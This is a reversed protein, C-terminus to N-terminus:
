ISYQKSQLTHELINSLQIMIDGNLEKDAQHNMSKLKENLTFGARPINLFEALQDFCQEHNRCLNEYSLEFYRKEEKLNHLEVQKNIENIYEVWVKAIQILIKDFSWDYGKEKFPAPHADILKKMKKAYSLTVARGDRYIHIFKAEPFLEILHPIMFAVMASKNLFVPKNSLFQFAGFSSLIRKRDRETWRNLSDQTFQHPDIWIPVTTRDSQYWPYYAPHWLDNAESPFIALDPHPELIRTLISTGSRGCGIIFVPNRLSGSFDGISSLGSAISRFALPLGRAVVRKWKM